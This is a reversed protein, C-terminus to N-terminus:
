LALIGKARLLRDPLRPESQLTRIACSTETTLHAVSSNRQRKQWAGTGAAPTIVLKYGNPSVLRCLGRVGLSEAGPIRDANRLNFFFIRLIWFAM